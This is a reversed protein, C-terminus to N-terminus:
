FAIEGAWGQCDDNNKFSFVFSVYGMADIRAECLEVTYEPNFDVMRENSTKRFFRYDAASWLVVENFCSSSLFSVAERVKVPFDHPVTLEVEDPDETWNQNSSYPLRFIYSNSNKM